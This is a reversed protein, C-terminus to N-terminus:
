PRCGGDDVGDSREAAAAQAEPLRKRGDPRRGGARAGRWGDVAFLVLAGWVIAFGVFRTRDFPEGYVLWGVLFQLTPGLYQLVGLTSLPIRRAAVAFCLLPAATAPGAAAILLDIRPSLTGFRGENRAHEWALWGLAPLFLLVTELALSPLADLSTTKKVLAYASFTVALFLAIWPLHHSGAAIWGVGIAAVAVALWALPRLREGLVVVGLLVSVLPTLYYGLSSEIMRGHTVAWVFGLWNAAVLLAAIAQRGVVAPARIAADLRGWGGQWWLLPLLTLTSWVVRHAVLQLSPVQELQKWYVPLLGWMLFAAVASGHGVDLLYGPRDPREM